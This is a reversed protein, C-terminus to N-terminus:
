GEDLCWIVSWPPMEGNEGAGEPWAFLRAGAPPGPLVAAKDGANAVLALRAGGGLRWNVSLGTAGWRVFSGTRGPSDALLPVIRAHRLELLDAFFARFDAGEADPEAPPRSAAFTEPANPDPIRARARRGAFEPFRAFERRRGERVAEALADHFDCFFYFPTRAAIEEGMFILPIHPSLLCIASAARLAEPTALSALREGMARNGIQDHNQLFGVFATPPLDASPEGRAAGARHASPEGQYVFGEALARGLAALPDEAYDEYYGVTEGTLAVHVAHHLDDNWQARYDGRMWRAQNADNELVLHVHRGPCETRVREGLDALFRNRWDDRIAHVADLRLGDFRYEGLWYLANQIFFERVEGRSFDIAAGWPTKEDQRFMKEAYLHLYNGDPGFHNYVVDLFVMMEMGHATDILRKLDDPTGYARDPAFPLVGDYGWNRGGPFDAVPMLEVATIGLEKLGSLRRELAAFSGEPTFSGVHLEYLVTEHWPRGAWDPTQWGYADPDVVLSPGHVDEAQARAAPDPVETGDPLAYLYATGPPAKDTEAEFWGGPRATMAIREGLAPLLLHLADVSPAWIRFRTRGRCYEAGFSLRSRFTANM